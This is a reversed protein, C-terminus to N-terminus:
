KSGVCRDPYTSVIIPNGDKDLEFEIAGFTTYGSVNMLYRNGTILKNCKYLSYEDPQTGYVWQDIHKRTNGTDNLRIACTMIEKGGQKQVIGADRINYKTNNTNDCPHFIFIYDQQNKVIRIEVTTVKYIDKRIILVYCLLAAIALLIVALLMLTKSKNRNM